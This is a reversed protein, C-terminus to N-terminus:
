VEKLGGSRGSWLGSAPAFWSPVVLFGRIEGGSFESTHINFYTKEEILAAAFAAEASATTGGNATIFAPNWSSSQELDYTQDMTGSTV